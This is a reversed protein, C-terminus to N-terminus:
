KGLTGEQLAVTVRMEDTAKRHRAARARYGPYPSYVAAELFSKPCRSNDLARYLIRDQLSMFNEFSVPHQHMVLSTETVISLLPQLATFVSQRPRHSEQFLREMQDGDINTLEYEGNIVCYLAVLSEVRQEDTEVDLEEIQIM